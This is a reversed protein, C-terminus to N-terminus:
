LRRLERNRIMIKKKKKLQGPSLPQHSKRIRSKNRDSKIRKLGTDDPFASLVRAAVAVQHNIIGKNTIDHIFDINSMYCVVCRSLFGNLADIAEHTFKHEINSEEMAFYLLRPSFFNKEYITYLPRREMTTTKSIENVGYLYNRAVHPYGIVSSDCLINVHLDHVRNNSTTYVAYDCKNLVDFFIDELMKRIVDIAIKSSSRTGTLGALERTINHVSNYLFLYDDPNKHFFYDAYIRQKKLLYDRNIKKICLKAVLADIDNYRVQCKGSKPQAGILIVESDYPIHKHNRCVFRHTPEKSMKTRVM